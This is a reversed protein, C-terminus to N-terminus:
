NKNDSPFPKLDSWDQGTKLSVKLDVKLSGLLPLNEMKEKLVTAFNEVVSPHVEFILEDHMELVMRATEYYNSLISQHIEQMALKIIDSASSQIRTNVAVREARSKLESRSSNLNDIKRRRGLISEVYGSKACDELVKEIFTDINPFASSFQERFESATDTDVGLQISLSKIGMGYIIGYCIQKAHQRNDSTVEEIPKKYIKSAMTKFVDHSFDVQATQNLINLLNEDESFHAMLRLELQSYDASVFCWGQKPVLCKRPLCEIIEEARHEHSPITIHFNRNILFMDPDWMAVRGTLQWFDVKGCVRTMNLKKDVRAHTNVSQLADLAKNIKRFDQVVKPFPHFKMLINLIEANTPDKSINSNTNHDLLHHKLDLDEYLVQAVQKINTLNISRNSKAYCRRTIETLQNMLDEYLRLEQGLNKMSLGIGHIMMHAMALRSPIEAKYYADLQNRKDLEDLIENILPQLIATKGSKVIDKLRQFDKLSKNSRLGSKSSNPYLFHRFQPIWKTEAVRSLSSNSNNIGRLPCDNVMWWSVEFSHWEFLKNLTYRSLDFGSHLIKYTSVINQTYLKIPKGGPTDLLNDRLRKQIYSLAKVTNVVYVVFDDGFCTYLRTVIHKQNDIDLKLNIGTGHQDLDESEESSCNLDSSRSNGSRRRRLVKHGIPNNSQESEVKFNLSISDYRMWSLLFDELEDKAGIYKVEFNPIDKARPM